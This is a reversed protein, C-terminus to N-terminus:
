ICYIIFFLQLVQTLQLYNKSLFLIDLGCSKHLLSREYTECIRWHLLKMKRDGRSYYNSEQLQKKHTDEWDRFCMNGELYAEAEM